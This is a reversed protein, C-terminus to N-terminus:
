ELAQILSVNDGKLLIRGLTRRGGDEMEEVKVGGKGQQKVEVAEDVVLNMFEDFGRIKGEIRIGVQEYLWIQVTAHSQLLKFIFNIPPLLVKGGGGRPRGSM